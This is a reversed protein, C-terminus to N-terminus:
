PPNSMRWSSATIHNMMSPPPRFMATGGEVTKEDEVKGEGYQRKAMNGNGWITTGWPKEVAGDRRGAIV